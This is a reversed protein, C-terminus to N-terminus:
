TDAVVPKPCSTEVKVRVWTEATNAVVMRDITGATFKEPRSTGTDESEPPARRNPRIKGGAQYWGILTPMKVLPSPKSASQTLTSTSAPKKTRKRTAACSM